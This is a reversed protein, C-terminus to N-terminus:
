QGERQAAVHAVAARLKTVLAPEPAAQRGQAVDEIMTLVARTAVRIVDHLETSLNLGGDRLEDFLTEASQCLELLATVDFFAAGRTVAHFDRCIAIWLVANGPRGELADLKREIAALRERAEGVFARLVARSGDCDM